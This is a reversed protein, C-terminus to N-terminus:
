QVDTDRWVALFMIQQRLLTDLIHAPDYKLLRFQSDAGADRGVLNRNKQIITVVM